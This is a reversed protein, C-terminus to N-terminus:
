ITDPLVVKYKHGENRFMIGEFEILSVETTKKGERLPIKPLYNSLNHMSVPMSRDKDLLGQQKYDKLKNGFYNLKENKEINEVFGIIAHFRIVAFDFSTYTYFKLMDNYLPIDDTQLSDFLAGKLKVTNSDQVIFSSCVGGENRLNIVVSTADEIRFHKDVHIKFKSIITNFNKLLVAKSLVKIITKLKIPNDKVTNYESLTFESNNKYISNLIFYFNTEHLCYFNLSPHTIDFHYTSNKDLDNPKLNVLKSGFVDDLIDSWKKGYFVANRLNYAKSTSVNWHNTFKNFYVNVRTFIERFSFSISTIDNTVHKNISDSLDEAYSRPAPKCIIEYDGNGNKHYIIGHIGYYFKDSVMDGYKKTTNKHGLIVVNGNDRYNCSINLKDLTESFVKVGMSKITKNFVGPDSLDLDQINLNDNKM